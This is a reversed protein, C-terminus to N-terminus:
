HSYREACKQQAATPAIPGLRLLLDNLPQTAIGVLELVGDAHMATCDGVSGDRFGQGEVEDKRVVSTRDIVETVHELTQGLGRPQVVFDLGRQRFRPLPRLVPKLPREIQTSVDAPMVPRREGGVVHFEGEVADDVVVADGGRVALCEDEDIGVLRSRVSLPAAPHPPARRSCPATRAAPKRRERGGSWPCRWRGAACGGAM